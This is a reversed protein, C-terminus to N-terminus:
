AGPSQNCTSQRQGATLEKLLTLGHHFGFIHHGSQPAIHRKDAVRHDRDDEDAKGAERQSRSEDVENRDPMLAVRWIFVDRAHRILMGSGM